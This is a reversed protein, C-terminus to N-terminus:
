ILIVVVAFSGCHRCLPYNLDFGRVERCGQMDGLMKKVQGLMDWYVAKDPHFKPLVRDSNQLLKELLAACLLPRLRSLLRVRHDLTRQIIYHSQHFVGLHTTLKFISFPYHCTERM